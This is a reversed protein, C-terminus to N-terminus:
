SHSIIQIKKRKRKRGRDMEQGARYSEPKLLEKLGRATSMLFLKGMSEQKIQCLWSRVNPTINCPFCQAFSDGQVVPFLVRDFGQGSVQDRRGTGCKTKMIKGRFNLLLVWPNLWPAPRLWALCGAEGLFFPSSHFLSVPPLLARQINKNKEHLHWASPDDEASSVSKAPFNLLIFFSFCPTNRWVACVANMNKGM